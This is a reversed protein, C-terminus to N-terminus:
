IGVIKIIEDELCDPKKQGVFCIQKSHFCYMHILECFEHNYKIIHVVLSLSYRCIAYYTNRTAAKSPMEVIYSQYM